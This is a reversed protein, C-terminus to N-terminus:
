NKSTLPSGSNTAHSFVIARSALISEIHHVLTEGTMAGPRIRDITWQDFQRVSSVNTSVATMYGSGAVITRADQDFGGYPYAFSALPTHTIAELDRKGGVIERELTDPLKHRLDQHDQTHGAIEVLGSAAIETIDEASMYNPKGLFHSIVYATAPVDYKKLIPFVDTYFDKYGDDFTLIIPKKPMTYTGKLAEGLHRMTIFTYGHNKLTAIQAEFTTPLIDLSKRITDKPDKVYEVYHYM